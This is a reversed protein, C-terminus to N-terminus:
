KNVNVPPNGRDTMASRLKGIEERKDRLKKAEDAALLRDSDPMPRKLTVDLTKLRDEIRKELTKLEWQLKRLEPYEGGKSADRAKPIAEAIKRFLSVDASHGPSPTERAVPGRSQARSGRKSSFQSKTFTLIKKFM